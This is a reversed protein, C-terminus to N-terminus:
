MKSLSRFGRIAHVPSSQCTSSKIESTSSNYPESFSKGALGPRGPNLKVMATEASPKVAIAMFTREESSSSSHGIQGEGALM